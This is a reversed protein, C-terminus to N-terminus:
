LVQINQSVPVTISRGDISASLYGSLYLSPRNGSELLHGLQILFDGNSIHVTFGAVVTKQPTLEFPANLGIPQNISGFSVMGRFGEVSVPVNNNNTVILTLRLASNAISIDGLSVKKFGISIKDMVNTAISGLVLKLIALGGFLQLIKM